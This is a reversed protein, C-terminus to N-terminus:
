LVDEGNDVYKVWVLFLRDGEAIIALEKGQPPHSNKADDLAINIIETTDILAQDDSPGTVPSGPFLRAEYCTQNGGPVCEDVNEEDNHRYSHPRPKSM